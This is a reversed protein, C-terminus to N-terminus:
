DVNQEMLEDSRNKVEDPEFIDQVTVAGQAAVWAVKEEESLDCRVKELEKTQELVNPDGPQLALAKEYEEAAKDWDGLFFHGQGRRFHAKALNYDGREIANSVDEVARTYLKLKLAVAARNLWYLPEHSSLRICTSYIVYATKYEGNRFADNGKVKLGASKKDAAAWERKERLIQEDLTEGTRAREAEDDQMMQLMHQLKEPSQFMSSLNGMPSTGAAIREMLGRAADDGPYELSAPDYPNLRDGPKFM